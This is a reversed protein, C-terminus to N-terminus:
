GIKSFDKLTDNLKADIEISEPTFEKQTENQIDTKKDMLKQIRWFLLVKIFRKFM